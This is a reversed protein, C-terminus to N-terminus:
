PKEERRRREVDMALARRVMTELGETVDPAALAEAERWEVALADSGPELRGAGPTALYDLKM